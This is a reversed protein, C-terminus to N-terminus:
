ANFAGLHELVRVLRQINKENRGRWDGPELQVNSSTVIVLAGGERPQVEFEVKESHMRDSHIEAVLKMRKRRVAKFGPLRRLARDGLSLATDADVAFQGQWRYSRWGAKQVLVPAGAGSSGTPRGSPQAGPFLPAIKESHPAGGPFSPAELPKLRERLSALLRTRAVQEDCGVLDVYVVQGLLGEPACERVRVPVLTGKHGLPDRAFAAAWEPQPFSAGLYDPSLVAITRGAIKAARDMEVVFNSGPVFDWAQVLATFGEEELQWAIWEAWVADASNYSVFFDREEEM